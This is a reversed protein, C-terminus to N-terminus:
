PLSAGKSIAYQIAKENDPVFIENGKDDYMLTKGAPVKAKENNILKTDEKLQPLKTKAYEALETSVLEEYDRPVKGGNDRKIRRAIEVEQNLIDDIIRDKNLIAENAQESFNPNFSANMLTNFEGGSFNGGLTAKLTPAVYDKQLSALERREASTMSELGYFDLIRDKVKGTKGTKNLKTARDRIYSRKLYNKQKDALSSNYDADAAVQKKTIEKEYLDDNPDKTEKAAKAPSKKVKPISVSIDEIGENTPVPGQGAYAQPKQMLSSRLMELPSQQPQGGGGAISQLLKMIPNAQQQGFM